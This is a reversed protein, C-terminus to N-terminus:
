CPTSRCERTKNLYNHTGASSAAGNVLALMIIVTSTPEQGSIHKVCRSRCMNSVLRVLSKPSEVQSQTSGLSSVSVGGVSTNAARKYYITMHGICTCHQSTVYSTVADNFSTVDVFLIVHKLCLTDSACKRLFRGYIVHHIPYPVGLAGPTGHSAVYIHYLPQCKRSMCKCHM